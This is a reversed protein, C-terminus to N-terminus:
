NKFILNELKDMYSNFTFLEAMEYGKIAMQKLDPPNDLPLNKFFEEFDSTKRQWVFGNNENIYQGISSVDSVIPICGYNSAESIVKPFGESALSPLILFHANTFIDYVKDWSLAGHVTFEIPIGDLAVRMRQEDVGNGVIHLHSFKTPDRYQKIAEILRLIGKEHEIRGVFCLNFPANYNKKNISEWGQKRNLVDLSPNEFSYWNSKQGPWKGNITVKRKQMNKLMWRQLFYSMPPNEEVWNGAYKYWGKKGSFLTLYPIVYLGMSDPARFQFIDAHKLEKRIKGIIEVSTTIVSLKNKLGVGGHPPIPVFRIKKSQYAIASSPIPENKHLCSVHVVEGFREAINDLERVLPGFGVLEGNEKYYHQAHSIVLIRM